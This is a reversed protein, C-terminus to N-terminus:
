LFRSSSNGGRRIITVKSGDRFSNIFDESGLNRLVEVVVSLLWAVCRSGLLVVGSFRGKEEVRLEVSGKVVLFLFSKAEV